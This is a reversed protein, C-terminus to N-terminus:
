KGRLLSPEAAGRSKGSVCTVGGSVGLALLRAFRPLLWGQPGPERASKLVSVLESFQGQKSPSTWRRTQGFSSTELCSKAPAFFWEPARM